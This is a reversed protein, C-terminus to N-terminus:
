KNKNKIIRKSNKLCYIANQQTHTYREIGIGSVADLISYGMRRGIGCSKAM